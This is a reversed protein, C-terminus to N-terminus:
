KKGISLGVRGRNIILDLIFLSLLSMVFVLIGSFDHFFGQGAAEGFHYTILALLLLRVINAFISIPIISLFMLVRKLNSASILYVYLAGVSMLSVLSRVGSCADGVVINYDGVFLIVGNRSVLYGAMKLIIETVRAVLLKLPSTAMDVLFLPPPVLFILFLAPFLVKKVADRGFLFGTTGILVPILSFAELIILRQVSGFAYFLLGTILLSLAFPHVRETLPMTFADRKTWLLWLFAILILPGHSYDALKWGSSSLKYFTPIYTILLLLYTGFKLSYIHKTNFSIAARM